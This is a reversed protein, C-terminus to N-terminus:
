AQMFIEIQIDFDLNKQTQRYKIFYNNQFSTIYIKNKFFFFLSFTKIKQIELHIDTYRKKQLKLLTRTNSIKQASYCLQLSTYIPTIGSQNGPRRLVLGKTIYLHCIRYQIITCCQVVASPYFTEQLLHIIVNLSTFDHLTLGTISPHGFCKQKVM